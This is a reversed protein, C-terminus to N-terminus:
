RPPSDAVMSSLRSFTDPALGPFVFTRTGADVPMTTPALEVGKARWAPEYEFVYFGSGPDRAIAGVRSGWCRVEVVDVPEYAM